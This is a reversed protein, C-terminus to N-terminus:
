SRPIIQRWGGHTGGKHSQLVIVRTGRAENALAVIWTKLASVIAADAGCGRARGILVESGRSPQSQDLATRRASSLDHAPPAASTAVRAPASSWKPAPLTRRAGSRQPVRTITRLRVFSCVRRTAPDNWARSRGTSNSGETSGRATSSTHAVAARCGITPARHDLRRRGGPQSRQQNQGPQVARRPPPSGRHAPRAPTSMIIQLMEARELAQLAGNANLAAFRQRPLVSLIVRQSRTLAIVGGDHFQAPLRLSGRARAADRREHKCSRLGLVPRPQPSALRDDVAKVREVSGQTTQRWFVLM